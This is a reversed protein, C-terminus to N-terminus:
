RKSKTSVGGTSGMEEFAYRLASVDLESSGPLEMRNADTLVYSPSLDQDNRCGVALEHGERSLRIIYRRTNMYYSPQTQSM